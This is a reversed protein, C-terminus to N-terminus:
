RVLVDVTGGATGGAAAAAGGGGSGPMGGRGNMFDNASRLASVTLPSTGAPVSIWVGISGGGCGGGAGGGAGGNGGRGGRGGPFPGALTPTTRAGRPITGGFAGAAGLGGDGGAGGDGGRGGDSSIFVVDNVTPASRTGTTYRVLMAVSPGGSTGPTGARGGCGGAGGGGGGGGIGDAFGCVPETYEFEVGGGAGGGGGGSGPSGSTGATALDALWNEGVFNGLADDCGNGSTGTTGDGGTAGPSPGMFEDSVTFDALGCCVDASCSIGSIPAQSDTGGSGGMGGSPGRGRQANPQNEQARPCSASAGSGGSVDVGDCTNAAGAGGAVINEAIPLCSHSSNEIAGRLADGDEPATTSAVGAVGTAGSSGAGGVGARVEMDRLVLNPGPDVVYAGFAAQSAGQADLGRVAIWEVVTMRAGAERVVLAAGGPATTAAPARVEVRFGEPDLALFDRRYGGHLQVGDPITVTETYSGSAVFVHPRPADTILSAAARQLALSISRLPHTPSGLDTDDGSTAVYFSQVVIGDAGDCNVDLDSATTRIPGPVDSLSSVTCECGNAIDLDADIRDGPMIGDVADPCLLVCTPAFPDGGCTLDGEPITSTTCDVGCEGCNHLDLSYAGRADRFGDDISGNCDNDVEDCVESAPACMSLVGNTCMAAGVCINEEPDRLACALAFTEGVECSCSGGAPLCLDDDCVYGAPCGAACPTACRSEGGVDVCSAGIVQGCDGNDTCALCLHDFSPVCNGTVARAFGPDCGTAACTPTGLILACEVGRAHAPPVDCAHGCEGCHNLTDYLGDDNKFDEDVDGDLDDDVGNCTEPEPLRREGPEFHDDILTSRSCASACTLVCILFVISRM